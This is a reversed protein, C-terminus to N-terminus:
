DCKSLKNESSFERVAFIAFIVSAIGPILVTVAGSSQKYSIIAGAAFIISGWASRIAEQAKWRPILLLLSAVSVILVAIELVAFTRGHAFVMALTLASTLGLLIFQFKSENIM